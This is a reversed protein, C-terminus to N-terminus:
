AVGLTSLRDSVLEMHHNQAYSIWKTATGPGPPNAISNDGWSFNAGAFDAHAVINKCVDYFTSHGRQPDKPERWVVWHDATTYRLYPLPGQFGPTDSQEPSRTGYDAYDLTPYTKIMQNWLAADKREIYHYKQKQVDSIQEPAAGSALIISNWPGNNSVWRLSADALRNVSSIDSGYISGLDVMIAIDKPNIKRDTCWDRLTRDSDEPDPDLEDGRIRLLLNESGVAFIADDLQAQADDLHIVAHFDIDESSLEAALWTFPMLGTSEEKAGASLAGLDIAYLERPGASRRLADRFKKLDRSVGNEPVLEFLPEIKDRHKGGVNKWAEFEGAKGRLIPYYM